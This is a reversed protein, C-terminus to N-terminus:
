GKATNVGNLFDITRQESYYKGFPHNMMFGVHGGHEPIELWVNPHSRCEEVPLSESTLFPDDKATLILAPITVSSIFQKSSCKAYYDDASSFGYMPATFRDDYEMLTRINRIDDKSLAFPLRNRIGYLKKKLSRLFRKGYVRGSPSDLLIASSKLDCPVSIAVVKTIRPDIRTGCEGAYKLVLNGGLSFGVLAIEEFTHDAFLHNVVVQIDETAGSHYTKRLEHHKHTVGRLNMAAVNWGHQHLAKAMGRIYPSQATAELGHVVLAVRKSTHRIWDVDIFDGEEDTIRKRHFHVGAVTRFLAPLITQLHKNRIYWPPNYRSELLPM